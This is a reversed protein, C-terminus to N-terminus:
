KFEIDPPFYDECRLSLAAAIEQMERLTKVNVPIGSARKEARSEYEKEGHTYIRTQGDAKPSERLERLFTSFSERIVSKEGFLAYDIALFFHTIDTRGPELNLHNSTKGGSLVGCFLDVIIGLGYGKHGGYLESSGGLPAIGGGAKVILNKIIEDADNSGRGQVDVAWGDPLPKENKHYVELKGRPVVTTAADYLFPAPEAPFALAIPNTGLMARKGYIPVGIAETNTMCLGLLDERSAMDAYYGAIGYHNSNRVAVMGIGSAKAKTIATEMARRSIVQGMAKDADIVASVPTESIIRPAASRNVVGSNIENHYRILRQVGHSEIGFLDACLLVDTITECDVASFGYQAFVDLCFRYLRDYPLTKYSM